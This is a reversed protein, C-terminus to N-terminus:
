RAPVAPGPIPARCELKNRYVDVILKQSEEYEARDEPARTAPNYAGISRGLIPCVAEQILSELRVATRQNQYVNYGILGVILIVGILGAVFWRRDRETRDMRHALQEQALSLRDQSATNEEVTVTLRQVDEDLAAARRKLEDM